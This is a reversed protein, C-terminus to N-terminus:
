FVQELDKASLVCNRTVFVSGEGRKWEKRRMSDAGWLRRAWGIPTVVVGFVVTLLAKSVVDGLLHSLGFWLGSVPRFFSPWAMVLVLLVIAAVVFGPPDWFYAVLLVILVAALGTDKPQDVTSGRNSTTRNNTTSNKM